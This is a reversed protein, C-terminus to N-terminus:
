QWSIVDGTSPTTSNGPTTYYNNLVGSESTFGQGVAAGGGLNGNKGLSWCLVGTSITPGGPFDAYPNVLTNDYNGNVLINYESGWPDYWAGIKATGTASNPIVGSTPQG